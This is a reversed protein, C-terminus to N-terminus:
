FKTVTFGKYQGMMAVDEPSIRQSVQGCDMCLYKRAVPQPNATERRPKGSADVVTRECRLAIYDATGYSM